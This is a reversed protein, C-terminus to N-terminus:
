YFILLWPELKTEQHVGDPFNGLKSFLDYGLNIRQKRNTLFDAIWLIISSPIGLPRLKFLIIYCPRCLRPSNTLSSFCDKSLSKQGNTFCKSLRKAQSLALSLMVSTQKILM